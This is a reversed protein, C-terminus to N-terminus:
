RRMSYAWPSIALSSRPWSCSCVRTGARMRLCTACSRLAPAIPPCLKTYLSIQPCATYFALLPLCLWMIVLLCVNYSGLAPLLPPCLKTKLVSHARLLPVFIDPPFPLCLCSFSFLTFLPLQILISHLTAASDSYLPSHCSFSFLTATWQHSSVFLM